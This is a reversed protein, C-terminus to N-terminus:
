DEPAEVLEKAAQDIMDHCYDVEDSYHANPQDRESSVLRLVASVLKERAEVKKASM